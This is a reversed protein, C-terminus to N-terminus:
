QAEWTTQDLPWFNMDNVGWNLMVVGVIEPTSVVHSPLGMTLVDVGTM